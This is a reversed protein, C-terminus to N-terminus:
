QLTSKCGLLDSKIAEQAENDFVVLKLHILFFHFLFFFSVGYKECQSAFLKPIEYVAGLGVTVM